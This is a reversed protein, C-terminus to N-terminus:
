EVEYRKDISQIIQRTIQEKNINDIEYELADNCLQMKILSFYNYASDYGFYLDNPYLIIKMAKVNSVIDCLGSRVAIFIGSLEIIRGIMDLPFAIPITDKIPKENEGVCNTCVVFDRDLFYKAINGFVDSYNEKISNAYPALIITKDRKLGYESFLAKAKEEDYVICPTEAKCNDGFVEWEYIQTMTKKYSRSYLNLGTRLTYSPYLLDVKLTDFNMFCCFDKLDNMEQLTCYIVEQMGCMNAVKKNTKGVVLIRYEEIKKKRIYNNIYRSVFYTDGTAAAPLVLLRENKRLQMGHYVRYGRFVPTKWFYLTNSNYSFKWIHILQKGLKYGKSEFLPLWDSINSSAIFIICDKRYPVLYDSVNLVRIGCHKENTHDRKLDLFAYVDIKYDQLIHLIKDSIENVGFIVVEKKGFKIKKNYKNIIKRLKDEELNNM